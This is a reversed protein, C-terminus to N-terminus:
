PSESRPRGRGSEGVQLNAAYTPAANMRGRMYPDVSLYLNKVLLQGEGPTPVEVTRVELDDLSVMGRSHRKLIIQTNDM